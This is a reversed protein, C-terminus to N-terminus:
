YVNIVPPALLLVSPGYKPDHPLLWISGDPLKVPLPQYGHPAVVVYVYNGPPPVPLVPALPM